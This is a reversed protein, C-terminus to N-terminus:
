ETRGGLQGMRWVDGLTYEDLWKEADFSDGWRASANGDKGSDLVLLEEPKLFGVLRDSHTAVILQTRLSAERLLEALIRLLEPHLSVEPEDILTVEGLGPSYLLTVLWLFRLMGDSLQNMFLAAPYRRDKWGLGIIGQALPPFEFKEFEPFGARIADEVAQFLDSMQEKMTYLCSLLDEGNPGPLHAPRLSQPMRIPANLRLDLLSYHTLSAIRGRMVGLLPINMPAQSLATEAPNYKLSSEGPAAYGSVGTLALAEVTTPLVSKQTDPDFYRVDGLTSQILAGRQQGDQNLQLVEGSILYGGYGM